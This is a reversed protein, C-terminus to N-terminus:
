SRALSEAVLSANPWGPLVQDTMYHKRQRYGRPLNPSAILKTAPPLWEEISATRAVVTTRCGLFAAVHMPGSDNTIVHEASQFLELLAENEVRVVTEAPLEPPLLDSKSAALIVALGESQLLNRLELIHPFQKSRWQAGLHLVVRGNRPAAAQRQLYAMEIKQLPIELLKAWSRYRNEVRLLGTRYPLDIFLNKRALFRIWGTMKIKAHPFLRRAALYDRLDGRISLVIRPSKMAVAAGPMRGHFDLAHARNRTTYPLEV